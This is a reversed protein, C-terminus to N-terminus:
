LDLDILFSTPSMVLWDLVTIHKTDKHLHVNEWTTLPIDKENYEKNNRLTESNKVSVRSRHGM